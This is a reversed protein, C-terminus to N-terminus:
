EEREFVTKINTRGLREVLWAHIKEQTNKDLTGKYGFVVVSIDKGESGPVTYIKTEAYSCSILEPFIARAEGLLKKGTDSVKSLAEYQTKYRQVMVQLRQVESNMRESEERSKVFEDMPLATEITLSAKGLHFNEALGILRKKAAESLTGGGYVLVLSKKEPNIEHRLLYNGEYYSVSKIYDNAGTIFREKQVLKYGFYVSPILTVIIILTIFRNIRNRLHPDIVTTIPFKLLQSVLLAAFAIFVSNIFFLYLAGFLFKVQLTALGYGATCLPPMLATAIAVGPIVNGKQRSSLAVIGALGGFFAILVDYISPSTRALLESHASSVPTLAFYLASTIISAIIAFAFNKLSKSFLEFNYTAVSYGVGIIPGMLPSILMAGIIVATSNMNLGVSAVLIAFILTWLNTGKFVIDKRITADVNGFDELEPELNLYHLLLRILHSINMVPGTQNPLTPM